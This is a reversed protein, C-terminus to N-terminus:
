DGAALILYDGFISLKLGCEIVASLLCVACDRERVECVCVHVSVCLYVFIDCMCVDCVNCQCPDGEFCKLDFKRGRELDAATILFM